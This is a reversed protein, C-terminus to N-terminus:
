PVVWTSGSDASWAGSLNIFGLDALLVTPSQFAMGQFGVFQGDATWADYGGSGNDLRRELSILGNTGALTTGLSYMVALVAHQNAATVAIAVNFAYADWPLEAGIQGRLGPIVDAQGRRTGPALLNPDGVFRVGTVARLDTGGALLTYTM